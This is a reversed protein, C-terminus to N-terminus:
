AQARKPLLDEGRRRAREEPPAAWREAMEPLTSYHWRCRHNPAAGPRPAAQYRAHNPVMLDGTRTRGGRGGFGSHMSVFAPNKMARDIAHVRRPCATRATGLRTGLYHLVLARSCGDDNWIGKVRAGQCRRCTWM